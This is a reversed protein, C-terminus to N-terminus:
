SRPPPRQQSIQRLNNAAVVNVSRHVPASATISLVAIAAALALAAFSDYDVFHSNPQSAPIRVGIVRDLAAHGVM